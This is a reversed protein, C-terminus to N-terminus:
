GSHKESLFRAIGARCSFLQSYAPVPACSGLLKMKASGL